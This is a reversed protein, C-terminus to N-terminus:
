YYKKYVERAADGHLGIPVIDSNAWGKTEDNIILDKMIKTKFNLQLRSNGAIDDVSSVKRGNVYFVPKGGSTEFMNQLSFYGEEFYKGMDIGAVVRAGNSTPWTGKTADEPIWFVKKGNIAEILKTFGGNLTNYAEKMAPPYLPNKQIETYSDQIGKIATLYDAKAAAMKGPRAKMFSNNFPMGSANAKKFHELDDAAASEDIRWPYKFWNLDISWDYAAVWELQAKMAYMVSALANVEAWGIYDNEDFIDELNLGDIFNNDLYIKDEKKLSTLREIAKNYSPGFAAAIADDLFGNFGTANKDILNAVLSVAWAEMGFVTGGILSNGYLTGKDGKVWAPTKIGPMSVYDYIPTTSELTLYCYETYYGTEYDYDYDWDSIYYGPVSFGSCYEKSSVGNYYDYNWFYPTEDYWDYWEGNDYYWDQVYGPTEELWDNSLLANMETPYKNFGFHEKMLAEMKPDISIKALNALASYIATKPTKEKVYAADYYAIAEDWNKAKLAALADDLLDDISKGETPVDVNQAAGTTDGPVISGITGDGEGSGGGETSCAMFFLVTFLALVKKM